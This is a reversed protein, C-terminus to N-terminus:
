SKIRSNTPDFRPEPRVTAPISRGDVEVALETGPTALAPPM